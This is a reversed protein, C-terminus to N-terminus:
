VPVALKQNRREWLSRSKLLKGTMCAQQRGDHWHGRRIVVSEQLSVTTHALPDALAGFRWSRPRVRLPSSVQAIM